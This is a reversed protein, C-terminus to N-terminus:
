RKRRTKWRYVLLLAGGTCAVALAAPEPVASISFGWWVGDYVTVNHTVVAGNTVDSETSLFAQAEWDIGVFASLTFDTEDLFGLSNTPGSRPATQFGTLWGYYPDVGVGAGNAANDMYVTYGGGINTGYSVGRPSPQNNHIVQMWNLNNTPDTGVPNYNLLFAAGGGTPDTFAPFTNAGLTLAPANSAWAAYTSLTFSGQLTATTYNWINNANNYPQNTSNLAPLLWPCSGQPRFSAPNPTLTVTYGGFSASAPNGNAPNPNLSAALAPSVLSGSVLIASARVLLRAHILTIKM